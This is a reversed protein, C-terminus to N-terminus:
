NATWLICLTCVEIISAAADTHVFNAHEFTSRWCHTQASFSRVFSRSLMWVIAITQNTRYCCCCWCFYGLMQFQRFFVILWVSIVYRHQRFYTSNLCFCFVSRNLRRRPNWVCIEQQKCLVSTHLTLYRNFILIKRKEWEVCVYSSSSWISTREWLTSPM